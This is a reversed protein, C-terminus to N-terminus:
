KVPVCKTTGSNATGACSLLPQPDGLGFFKLLFAIPSSFNIGGQAAHAPAAMGGLLTLTAVATLVGSQIQKKM